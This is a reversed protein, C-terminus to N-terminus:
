QNSLTPTLTILNQNYQNTIRPLTRRNYDVSVSGSLNNLAIAIGNLTEVLTSTMEERSIDDDENDSTNSQPLIGFPNFLRNLLSAGNTLLGTGGIARFVSNQRKNLVGEGEHLMAYGDRGIYRAGVAYSGLSGLSLVSDIHEKYNDYNSQLLAKAEDYKQKYAPVTSGRYTDLIGAAEAIQRMLESDVSMYKYGNLGFTNGYEDYTSATMAELKTKGGIGLLGKNDTRENLLDEVTYEGGWGFLGKRGGIKNIQENTYGMALLKARQEDGSSNLIDQKILEANEKRKAEVEEAVAKELEDLKTNQIEVLKDTTNRLGQIFEDMSNTTIYRLEEETALGQEILYAKKDELSTMNNIDQEASNLSDKMVQQNQVMIDRQEDFADHLDSLATSTQNFSKYIETAGLAVAGAALVAWGVPNSALLMGAGVAGAVAGTGYGIASKRAKDKEEETNTKKTAKQIEKVMNVGGYILEAAGIAVGVGTGLTAKGATIGIKEIGTKVVTTIKGFVTGVKEIGTKVVTTIKGFLSKVFGGLKSATVKIWSVAKGGLEKFINKLGIGNKFVDKLKEGLKNLAKGGIIALFISKVTTLFTSFVKDGKIWTSLTDALGSLAGANQMATEHKRETTMIDDMNDLSQQYKNPEEALMRNFEELNGNMFDLANKTRTAAGVTNIGFNIGSSKSIAGVSMNSGSNKAMEVLPEAAKAIEIAGGENAAVVGMLKEELTGNTIYEYTNSQAEVVKITRAYAEQETYGADVYSKLIAMVEANKRDLKNGGTNYEIDRLLPEMESTLNNVVGSQLLRNGSKSQQLILMQTKLTDMNQKSMNFSMNVWAESQTNLVPILIKAEADAIAKAIADGGKFGKEIASQVEPMFKSNFNINNTLGEERFLRKADDYFGSTERGNTGMRAAFNTFTENYTRIYGEFGSQLDNFILMNGFDTVANILSDVITSIKEERKRGREEARERTRSATDNLDNISDDLENLELIASDIQSSLETYRSDDRSITDLEKLQAIIDNSKNDAVIQLADRQQYIENLQKGLETNALRDQEALRKRRDIENKYHTNRSEDLDRENRERKRQIIRDYKEQEASIEKMREIEKKGSNWIAKVKNEFKENEANIEETFSDKIKNVTDRYRKDEDDKVKKLDTSLIDTISSLEKKYREARREANDFITNIKRVIERERVDFIQAVPPQNGNNTIPSPSRSAGDGGTLRNADRVPM